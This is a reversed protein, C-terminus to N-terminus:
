FLEKVFGFIDQNKKQVDEDQELESISRWHYTKGDYEFSDAKMKEPFTTVEALYFKHCYVKNEKASESYKQHIRQGMFDLTIDIKEIKLEGSIHSKIFDENNSNEKCNLFFQCGWRKDDYVLFRNPFHRYSDKIVVISHGHVIENLKNIDALLDSFNYKNKLDKAIDFISKGTFVLGLLVFITKFVVGPIGLFDSYSALVM